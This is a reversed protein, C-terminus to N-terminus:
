YSSTLPNTVVAVNALWLFQGAGSVDAVALRTYNYKGILDM